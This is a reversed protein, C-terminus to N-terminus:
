PAPELAALGVGEPVCPPPEAGPPEEAAPGLRQLAMRFAEATHSLEEESPPIDLIFTTFGRAV